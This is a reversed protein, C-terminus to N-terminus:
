NKSKTIVSGHVEFFNCLVIELPVQEGGGVMRVGWMKFGAGEVEDDVVEGADVSELAHFNAYYKSITLLLWLYAKTM